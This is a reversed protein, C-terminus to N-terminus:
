LSSDIADGVAASFLAAGSPLLLAAFLTLQGSHYTRGMAGYWLLFVSMFSITGPLTLFHSLLTLRCWAATRSCYRLAKNRSAPRKSAATLAIQAQRVSTHQRGEGM